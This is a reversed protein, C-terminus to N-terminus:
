TGVLDALVRRLGKGGPLRLAWKGNVHFHTRAQRLGDRILAIRRKGSRRHVRREM